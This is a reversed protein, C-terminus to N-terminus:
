RVSPASVATANVPCDTVMLVGPVYKTYTNEDVVLVNVPHEVVVATADLVLKPNIVCFNTQTTVVLAVNVGLAPPNTESIWIKWLASV